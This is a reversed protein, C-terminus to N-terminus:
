IARAMEAVPWGPDLVKGPLKAESPKRRAELTAIVEGEAARLRAGRRDLAVTRDVQRGLDRIVGEVVKRRNPAREVREVDARVVDQVREALEGGARDADGADACDDSLGLGVRDVGDIRQVQEARAVQQEVFHRIQPQCRFELSRRKLAKGTAQCLREVLGYESVEDREPAEAAELHEVQVGISQEAVDLAIRAGEAEGVDVVRDPGAIEGAGSGPRQGRRDWGDLVLIQEPILHMRGRRPMAEGGI